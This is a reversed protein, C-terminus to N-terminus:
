TRNRAAGIKGGSSSGMWFNVGTTALTVWTGIVSGKITADEVWGLVYISVFAFAALTLLTLTQAYRAHPIKGPAEGNAHMEALVRRVSADLDDTM